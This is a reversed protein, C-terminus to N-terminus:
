AARPFYTAAYTWSIAPQSEIGFSSALEMARSWLRRADAEEGQIQSILAEAWFRVAMAQIVGESANNTSAEALRRMDPKRGAIWERWVACIATIAGSVEAEGVPTDSGRPPRAGAIVAMAAAATTEVLDEPQIAPLVDATLQKAAFPEESGEVARLCASLALGQEMTVAIPNRLVFWFYM